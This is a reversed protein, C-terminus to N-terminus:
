QDRRRYSEIQKTVRQVLEQNGASQAIRRAEELRAVAKDVQGIQAYSTALGLLADTHRPALRLVQLFHTIAQEHQRLGALTIALQYRIAANAPDAASLTDRIMLTWLAVNVPDTWVHPDAEALTGAYATDTRTVAGPLVLNDLGFAARVTAEHEACVADLASAPEIESPAEGAHGSEEGHDDLGAIVPRVPLCGWLEYVTGGSAERVVDLLTLYNNAYWGIETLGMLMVLLIPLTLTLEVLSQGRTGTPTGDLVALLRRLRGRM